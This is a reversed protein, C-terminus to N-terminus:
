NDLYGIILEIPLDTAMIQTSLRTKCMMNYVDFVNVTMYTYNADTDEMTYKFGETTHVFETSKFISTIYKTNLAYIMFKSKKINDPLSEPINLSLVKFPTENTENVQNAFNLMEKKWSDSFREEDTKPLAIDIKPILNLECILYFFNQVVKFSIVRQKEEPENTRKNTGPYNHYGNIRVITENVEYDYDISVIQDRRVYIESESINFRPNDVKKLVLKMFKSIFPKLLSSKAQPEPQNQPKSFSFM